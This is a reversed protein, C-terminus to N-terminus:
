KAANWFNPDTLARVYNDGGIFEQQFGRINYLSMGVAYFVPFLAILAMFGLSPALFVRGM